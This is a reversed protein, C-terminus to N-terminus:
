RIVDNLFLTFKAYWTTTVRFENLYDQNPITYWNSKSNYLM